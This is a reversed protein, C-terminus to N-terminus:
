SFVRATSEQYTDINPPNSRPPEAIPLELIFTSGKGPGESEARISGGMRKITIACFHLGLGTGHDRTTFHAEFVNALTTESMGCGSDEFSLQVMERRGSPDSKLNSRIVLSRSGKDSDRLAQRANGVINILIQLLMSRDSDVTETIADSIEVKVNDRELRARCCRIAEQVLENLSIRERVAPTTAHQRQDRIVDHIHRINDNLTALLESLDRQDHEL